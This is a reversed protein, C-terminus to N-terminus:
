VVSKRDPWPPASSTGAPGAAAGRRPGRPSAERPSRGCHSTPRTASRARRRLSSRARSEEMEAQTAKGKSPELKPYDHGCRFKSIDMYVSGNSEYAHGKEVIAAVFDVIPNYNGQGPVKELYETVRTLADPMRIHLAALDEIFEAEHRRSHANFIAHDTVAAGLQADLAESLPEAAAACVAKVSGKPDAVAKAIADESTM